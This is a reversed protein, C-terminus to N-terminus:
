LPARQSAILLGHVDVNHDTRVWIYDTGPIPNSGVVRANRIRIPAMKQNVPLEAIQEWFCMLRQM